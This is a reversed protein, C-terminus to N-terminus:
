NSVALYTGLEPREIRIDWMLGSRMAEAKVVGLFRLFEDPDTIRYLKAVAWVINKLAETHDREGEYDAGDDISKFHGIAIRCYYWCAQARADLPLGGNPVSHSVFVFPTRTFPVDSHSM